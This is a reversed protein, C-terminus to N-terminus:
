FEDEQKTRKEKEIVKRISTPLIIDQLEVRNIKVGWKNSEEDLITHLKTSITERSNLIQDLTLEGIVSRLTTQTLKEIATPLSTVEYTARLPDTIQFFVLANIKINVNDRTIADQSPFDYVTERLDIRDTLGICLVNKGNMERIFKWEIKRPKDIIPIIWHLGSSLITKYNGFREIIMVQSQQIQTFGAIIVIVLLALVAILVVTM